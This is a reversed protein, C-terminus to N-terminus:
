VIGTCYDLGSYTYHASKMLFHNLLPCESSLSYITVFFECHYIVLIEMIMVIVVVIVIDIVLLMVVFEM